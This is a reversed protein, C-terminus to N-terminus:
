LKGHAPISPIAYEEGSNWEAPPGARRVPLAEIQPGTFSPEGFQLKMTHFKDLGNSQAIVNVEPGSTFPGDVGLGFSFAIVRPGIGWGGESGVFIRAVM